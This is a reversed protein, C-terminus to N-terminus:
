MRRKIKRFLMKLKEKVGLGYGESTVTGRGIHYVFDHVPFDILNKHLSAAVVQNRLCPAGHKEFPPLQLYEAKHLLACHPHIYSILGNIADFGDKDVTQLRGVLYANEKIATALLSEILGKRYLICDSDLLLIYNADISHIGFDMGPGHHLNHKQPLIHLTSIETKLAELQELSGDQSANEVVYLPMQPYAEYFSWLAQQTLAYTKYHIILTAIVM